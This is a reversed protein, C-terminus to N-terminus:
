FLPRGEGEYLFESALVRTPSVSLRGGEVPPAVACTELLPRSKGENLFSPLLSVPLALPNGSKRVLFDHRVGCVLTQREGTYVEFAPVRSPSEPAPHLLGTGAGLCPDTKGGGAKGYIFPPPRSQKRLM